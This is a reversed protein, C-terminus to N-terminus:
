LPYQLNWEEKREQCGCSRGFLKQFWKKFIDGGIKGINREVIDGLGKDGERALRKMPNLSGWDPSPQGRQLFTPPDTFRNRYPTGDENYCSVTVEDCVYQIIEQETPPTRGNATYHQQVLNKLNMWSNSKLEVGPEVSPFPWSRERPTTNTDRITLPM